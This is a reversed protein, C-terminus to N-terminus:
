VTVGEDRLRAARLTVRVENTHYAGGGWGRGRMETGVVGTVEACPVYRSFNIIAPDSGQPPDQKMLPLQSLDKDTGSYQACFCLCESAPVCM